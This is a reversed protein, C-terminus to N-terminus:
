EPKMKYNEQGSLDSYLESVSIKRSRKTRILKPHHRDDFCHANQQRWNNHQVMRLLKEATTVRVCFYRYGNFFFSYELIVSATLALTSHIFCIM